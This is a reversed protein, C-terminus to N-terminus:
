EVEDMARRAQLARTAAGSVVRVAVGLMILDLLMQIMTVSRAAVSIPSISNVGVTSLVSVSYYFSSFYSLPESFGGPDGASLIHYIKTFIGLFLVFIMLLAEVMQAQPHLAAHIRDIQWRFIVAFAIVALVVIFGVYLLGTLTDHHAYPLPWLVLLLCVGFIITRLATWAISTVLKRDFLRRNRFQHAM